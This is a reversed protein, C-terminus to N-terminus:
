FLIHVCKFSVYGASSSPSSDYTPWKCLSFNVRIRVSSIAGTRGTAGVNIICESVWYDGSYLWLSFFSNYMCIFFTAITIQVCYIHYVLRYLWILSAKYWKVGSTDTIQKQFLISCIFISCNCWADSEFILGSVFRTLRKM